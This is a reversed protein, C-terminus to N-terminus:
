EAPDPIQTEGTAPPCAVYMHSPYQGVQDASPAHSAKTFFGRAVGVTRMFTFTLWGWLGIVIQLEECRHIGLHDGSPVHIVACSGPPKPTIDGSPARLLTNYLPVSSM